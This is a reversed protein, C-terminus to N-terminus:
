HMFVKVLSLANQKKVMPNPLYFIDDKLIVYIIFIM